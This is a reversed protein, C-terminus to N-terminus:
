LESRAMTQEKHWDRRKTIFVQTGGGLGVVLAVALYGAAMATAGLYRGFLYTSLGTLVGTLVSIWLFPEKKHARLYVALAFVVVNVVAAIFLLGLALPTLVRAGLPIHLYRMLSFSVWVGWALLVAVITAQRLSRFFLRDLAAFESRAILLGFMPAKTNVWAMALTNLATAISLSMGMQGAVVAGQYAFLV